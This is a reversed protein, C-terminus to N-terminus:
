RGNQMAGGGIHGTENHKYTPVLQMRGSDQHHHWTFEDIKASGSRIQELQNPKFQSASVEGRDMARSLDRSADRMQEIYSMSNFKDAPIKTDYVAIDDFIPFGKNDFVVDGKPNREGALKVNPDNSKPVTTSTVNQAGYKDELNKRITRSDYPVDGLDFDHLSSNNGIISNSRAEQRAARIGEAMEEAQLRKVAREAEYAEKSAFRAMKTSGAPIFPVLMAASDAALDIFGEKVLNDDDIFWGYAIKGADYAVNLADWVTDAANNQAANQATASATSVGRGDAGAAAAVFAASIQAINIARQQIQGKSIEELTLGKKIESDLYVMAMAEGVASGIAGNQCDNNTAAGMACGVLAHAILQTPVNIVSNPNDITGKGLKGIQEAAMAGVEAVSNYLLADGFAKGFNTNYIATQLGSSILSRSAVSSFRKALDLATGTLGSSSELAKGIANGAYQTVGATAASIALNKLTDTSAIEKFVKGLNGKNNIVSVAVQSTLATFAAAAATGAAGALGGIAGATAGAGIAGTAVAGSAGAAGLSAGVAAGSGAAAAGATATGGLATGVSTSIASAAPMVAIAALLSVIVAGAPTLGSAEEDWQQYNAAVQTWNINPNQSLAKLYEYGPKNGLEEVLQKADTGTKIDVNIKGNANFNVNGNASEFSNYKLVEEYFGKDAMSQWMLSESNSKEQVFNSDKATLINIDGNANFSINGNATINSAVLNTNGGSNGVVNGGANISSSNNTSTVSEVSERTKRGVDFIGWFDRGTVFGFRPKTIKVDYIRHVDVVPVINVDGNATMNVNNNAATVSSGIVNINGNANVNVGNGANLAAAQHTLKYEEHIRTTTKFTSKKTTRTIFTSEDQSAALIVNAGANLNITDSANVQSGIIATTGGSNINVNNGSVVSGVNVKTDRLYYSKKSVQEIRNHLLEPQIIVNGAGTINVNNAAAIKAATIEINRASMNIDNGATVTSSATIVNSIVSTGRNYGSYSSVAPRIIIDGSTSTLNVNVGAKIVGGINVINGVAGLNVNQIATIAGSNNIAGTSNVTVNRGTVTVTGAQMGAPLNARTTPTPQNPNVVANNNFKDVIATFDGNASILSPRVSTQQNTFNGSYVIINGKNTKITGSNNLISENKVGYDREMRLEGNNAIINSLGSNEIKNGHLVLYGNSTINANTMNKIEKATNILLDANSNITGFNSLKDTAINAGGASTITGSNSFLNNSAINLAGSSSITANNMNYISADNGKIDVYAGSIEGYNYIFGSKANFIVSSTSNIKKNNTIGLFQATFNVDGGAIINANNTIMGATVSVKGNTTIDGTIDYIDYNGRTITVASPELPATMFVQGDNALIARNAIAPANNALTVTSIKLGNNNNDPTITENNAFVRSVININTKGTVSGSGNNFNTLSALKEAIIRGGANDFSTRSMVNVNALSSVLGGDNNKFNNSAINLNGASIVNGAKNSVDGGAMLYLINNSGIYGLNNNVNQTVRFDSRGGGNIIGGQNNLNAASLALNNNAVIGSVVVNNKVKGSLSNDLLNSATITVNNGQILDNNRIDRATINIDGRANILGEINSLSGTVNLNLNNTTAIIGRDRNNSNILDRGTTITIASAQALGKDNNFNADLANIQANGSILVAGSKNNIDSATITANGNSIIGKALSGNNDLKYTQSNDLVGSRLVLDGGTYLLGNQNNFLNSVLIDTVGGQLTGNNNNLGGNTKIKLRGTASITKRSNDISNTINLDINGAILQNYTLDRATLNLSGIQLIGNQNFGAGSNLNAIGAMIAGNNNSIDGNTTLNFNNASQVGKQLINNNVLNNNDNSFSSSTVTINNSQLLGNNNYFEAIANAIIDNSSSITGNINNIFSSSTLNIGGLGILGSNIKNQVDRKYSNNNSISAANLSLLNDAYFLNSNAFAGSLNSDIDKAIVTNSNNLSKANVTLKGNLKILGSNSIVTNVGTISHSGGVLINGSNNYNGTLKTGIFAADIIKSNSFNNGDFDLATLITLNANNTFNLTSSNDETGDSIKLLGGITLNANNTFNGTLLVIDGDLRRIKNNIFENTKLTLFVGSDLDNVFNTTKIIGMNDIKVQGTGGLDGSVDILVDSGNLGANNTINNYKAYFLDRATINGSNILQNGLLTVNNATLNTQNNLNAANIQFTGTANHVSGMTLDVQQLVDMVIDTASMQKSSVNQATIGIKRGAQIINNNQLKGSLKFIADLSSSNVIAQNNNTFNTAKVALDGATLNANNDINIAQILALNNVNLGGNNTVQNKAIIALEKAKGLASNSFNNANIQTNGFNFAGLNADGGIDFVTDGTNIINQSTFNKGANVTLIGGFNQTNTLNINNRSELYGDKALINGLEIDSATIKMLGGVKSNGLIKVSSQAEIFLYNTIDLAASSLFKDSEAYFNGATISAINEIDGKIAINQAKIGDAKNLLDGYLLLNEAQLFGENTIKTKSANPSLALNYSEADLLQDTVVVNYQYFNNNKLLLSPTIINSQLSNLVVDENIIQQPSNLFLLESTFLANKNHLLKNASISQTGFSLFQSNENLMNNKATFAIQEGAYIYNDSNNINEGAAVIIKDDAVLDIKNNISKGAILGISGSRIRNNPTTQGGIPEASKAAIIEPSKQLDINNKATIVIAEGATFDNKSTVNDATININGSAFTGGTKTVNGNNNVGQSNIITNGKASSNQDKKLSATNKLDVLGKATIEIDGDLSVMDSSSKVGVGESSAMLKIQKAYMAGFEGADIAYAEQKTKANISLEGGAYVGNNIKVKNANLKVDSNAVLGMEDNNKASIDIDKDSTNIEVRSTNIFGCNKCSVGYPNSLIFAARDGFIETTGELESLNNGKVDVIITSATRGTFNFNPDVRGGIRSQGGSLSNNVVLGDERVNFENPQNLSTGSASPAVIDMQAVNNGTVKVVPQHSGGGLVIGNNAYALTPNIILTFNVFYVLLYRLYNTIISGLKM